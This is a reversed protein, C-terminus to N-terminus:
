QCCKGVGLPLKGGKAMPLRRLHDGKGREYNISCTLSYLVRAGKKKFKTIELEEQNQKDRAVVFKVMDSWGGLCNDVSLGIIKGCEM